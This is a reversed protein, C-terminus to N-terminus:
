APDCWHDAVARKCPWDPPPGLALGRERRRLHLECRYRDARPHPSPHSDGSRRCNPSSGASRERRGVCQRGSWRALASAHLAARSAAVRLSRATSFHVAGTGTDRSAERSRDLQFREYGANIADDQVRFLLRRHRDRPDPGFKGEKDKMESLKAKYTALETELAMFHVSSHPRFPMTVCSNSPECPSRDPPM